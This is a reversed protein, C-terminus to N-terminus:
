VQILDIPCGHIESLRFRVISFLSHIKLFIAHENSDHIDRSICGHTFYVHEDSTVSRHRRMMQFLLTYTIECRSSMRHTHHLFPRITISMYKPQRKWVYIVERRMHFIHCDITIRILKLTKWPVRVHNAMNFYAAHRHSLM